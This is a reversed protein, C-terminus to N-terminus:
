LSLFFRKRPTLLKVPSSQRILYCNKFNLLRRETRTCICDRIYYNITLLSNWMEQVYTYARTRTALTYIRLIESDFPSRITFIEHPTAFVFLEHGGDQAEGAANFFSTLSNPSVRTIENTSFFLHLCLHGVTVSHPWIQLFCSYPPSRSFEYCAHRPLMASVPPEHPVGGLKNRRTGRVRKGQIRSIIACNSFDNSVSCWRFKTADQFLPGRANCPLDESQNLISM